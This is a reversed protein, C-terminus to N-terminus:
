RKKKPTKHQRFKADAGGSKLAAVITIAKGKSIKEILLLPKGALEDFVNYLIDDAAHIKTYYKIIGAIKRQHLGADVLLVDYKRRFLVLLLGIAVALLLLVGAGVSAVVMDDESIEASTPGAKTKTVGAPETPTPPNSDAGFETASNTSQPQTSMSLPTAALGQGSSVVVEGVNNDGSGGSRSSPPTGIVSFLVIGRYTGAAQEWSVRTGFFVETDQSNIAGTRSRILTQATPVGAYKGTTASDTNDLATYSADFGSISSQANPVAFGWAPVTVNAPATTLAGFPPIKYSTDLVVPPGDDSVLVLNTSSDAAGDFYDNTQAAGGVSTQYTPTDVSNIFLQYGDANTGVNVTLKCSSFKDPSVALNVQRPSTTGCNGVEIQLVGDIIMDLTPEATQQVAAFASLPGFFAGIVSAVLTVITAMRKM